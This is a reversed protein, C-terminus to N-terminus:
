INWYVTQHEQKWRTSENDTRLISTLVQYICQYLGKKACVKSLSKKENPSFLAAKITDESISGSRTQRM